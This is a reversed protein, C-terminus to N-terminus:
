THEFVIVTIKKNTIICISSENAHGIVVHGTPVARHSRINETSIPRIHSHSKLLINEKTVQIKALHIDVNDVDELAVKHAAPLNQKNVVSALLQDVDIEQVNELDYEYVTKGIKEKGWSGTIGLTSKGDGALIRAFDRPSLELDEPIQNRNNWEHTITSIQTLGHSLLISDCEEIPGEFVFLNSSILEIRKDIANLIEYLNSTSANPNKSKVEFVPFPGGVAPNQSLFDNWAYEFDSGNFNEVLHRASLVIKIEHIIDIVHQSLQDKLDKLKLDPNLNKVETNEIEVELDNALTLLDQVTELKIAKSNQIKTASISIQDISTQDIRDINLSSNSNSIKKEKSGFSNGSLNKSIQDSIKKITAAQKVAAEREEPTKQDWPDHETLGLVEELPRRDNEDGEVLDELMSNHLEICRRASVLEVRGECWQKLQTDNGFPIIFVPKRYNQFEAKLHDMIHTQRSGPLDGLSNSLALMEDFHDAAAVILTRPNQPYGYLM